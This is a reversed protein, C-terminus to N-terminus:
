EIAIYTQFKGQQFEFDTYPAIHGENLGHMVILGINSLQFRLVNRGLYIPQWNGHFHIFKSESKVSIQESFDLSCYKLTSEYLQNAGALCCAM